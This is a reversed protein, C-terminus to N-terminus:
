IKAQRAFDNKITRFALLLDSFPLSFHSFPKAETSCFLSHTPGNFPAQHAVRFSIGVFLSAGPTVAGSDRLMHSAGRVREMRYYLVSLNFM